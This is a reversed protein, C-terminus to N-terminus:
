LGYPRPAPTRIRRTCTAPPALPRVQDAIMSAIRAKMRPDQLVMQLMSSSRFPAPMAQM